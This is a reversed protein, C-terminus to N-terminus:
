SDTAGGSQEGGLLRGVLDLFRRTDLPKPLYAICGAEFARKVDERLVHASVGVIPIKMTEPDAKLARTVSLGDIGPLQIDMLILDPHDARARSLAEDGSTVATVRHGDAQVLESILELSYPNDEVVLVHKPM